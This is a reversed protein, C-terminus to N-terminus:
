RKLKRGKRPPVPLGLAKWKGNVVSSPRGLERAADAQTGGEAAIRRLVDDDADTWKQRSQKGKDTGGSPRPHTEATEPVEVSGVPEVADPASGQGSPIASELREVREIVAALQAALDAIGGQGAPVGGQGEPRALYDRLVENLVEGTTRRQRAARDVFQRALEDEVGRVVWQRVDESMVGGAYRQMVTSISRM